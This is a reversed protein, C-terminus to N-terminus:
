RVDPDREEFGREGVFCIVSGNSSNPRHWCRDLDFEFHMYEGVLVKTFLPTVEVAQTQPENGISIAPGREYCTSVLLSIGFGLAVAYLADSVISGV